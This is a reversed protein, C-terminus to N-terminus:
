LLLNVFGRNMKINQTVKKEAGHIIHTVLYKFKVILYGLILETLLHELNAQTLLFRKEGEIM